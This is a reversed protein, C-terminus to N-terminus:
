CMRWIIQSRHGGRGPGKSNTREILGKREMPKLRPTITNSDIEPHNRQVAIVLQYATAAGECERFADLVLQEMRGTKASMAAAALQSTSPDSSRAAASRKHFAGM